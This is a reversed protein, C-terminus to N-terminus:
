ILIKSISAFFSSSFYIQLKISIVNVPPIIKDNLIFRNQIKQTNEIQNKRDNCIITEFSLSYFQHIKSLQPNSDELLLQGWM